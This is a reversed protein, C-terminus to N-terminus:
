LRLLLNGSFYCKGLSVVTPYNHGVVITVKDGTNLLVSGNIHMAFSNQNTEFFSIRNVGNVRLAGDLTIDNLAGNLDWRVTTNFNYVGKVPAIFTNPNIFSSSPMFNGSVDFDETDLNLLQSTNPLVDMYSNKAAFAVDVDDTSIFKKWAPVTTTGNNFYYGTGTAV